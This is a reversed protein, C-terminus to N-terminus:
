GATEQLCYLKFNLQANTLLYSLGVVDHWQVNIYVSQADVRDIAISLSQAGNFYSTSPEFYFFPLLRVTGDASHTFSGVVQPAISLGHPITINIYQNSFDSASIAYPNLVTKIIKFMNNESNMVMDANEASTVDKGRQSVKIAFSNDKFGLQGRPTGNDSILIGRKDIKVVEDRNDGDVTIEGKVGDITVTGFRYISGLSGSTQSQDFNFARSPSASEAFTDLNVAPVDDISRTLFSNFGSKEYSYNNDAM